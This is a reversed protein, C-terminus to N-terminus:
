PNLNHGYELRVPGIITQYRVGLGVSFLKESFPYDRLNVATGLADAFLVVSWKGRLAQELELNFQVYSKAGIFLGTEDRPAAEGRQYGRLSGDGGPYFRVSVPLLDDAPAGFTTLVGHSFGAHVWRGRGWSTHYSAALVSRQYDVNGGFVRSASEMQLHLRYGKRPRLPNDRRERLLALNLSAIDARRGDTGSTSLENESNRLQRFTYGTTLALGFRRLPWLLSVNAGYEEHTFSLEERRLGFLQASGAISTGFLGPVTYTYDGASSKMSQVLKLNDAHARGFLNYHRWEVGGRLMEYSGWGAFLNVEQRRGEVLDFVVDRRAGAPPDYRLDVSRFVGLRSIRAQSNNLRVPNLLEDPQSRVLRRLTAERTFTNGEFRVQGLRVVPGPVVTAVATVANTGDPAPSTKAALKVDVDPHGRQYYWRRIATATDQRWLSTWPQNIRSAALGTPAPSGDDVAFELANVMWRRGERVTIAVDTLGTAPDAQPEGPTVEAEAYGLRRLEEELNGASRQLRGPSYIRESAQAFLASEGVFFARAEREKLALLGTFTIERLTLRRGRVVHLTAAIATFPRPLAPELRSDLPHSALSGDPLVAEVTLSSDPYGQDNLSSLVVLAADEIAGADLAGQAAVDEFLVKLKQEAARNGVWGLGQVQLEVASLLVTAWLFTLLAASSKRM